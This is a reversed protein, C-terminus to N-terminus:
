PRMSPYRSPHAASYTVISARLKAGFGVVTSKMSGSRDWLGSERRPLRQEVVAVELGALGRHDV